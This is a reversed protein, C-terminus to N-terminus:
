QSNSPRFPDEEPFAARGTSSGPLPIPSSPHGPITLPAITGDLPIFVGDLSLWEPLEESLSSRLREYQRVTKSSWEYYVRLKDAPVRQFADDSSVFVVCQRTEGPRMARYYGNPDSLRGAPREIDLSALKPSEQGTRTIFTNPVHGLDREWANRGQDTIDVTLVAESLHISWPSVNVAELIIRYYTPVSNEDGQVYQEVFRFQIPDRPRWSLVVYVTPIGLLVLFLATIILKTRRSM